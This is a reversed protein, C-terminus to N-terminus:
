IGGIGSVAGAACACFFLCTVAGRTGGPTLGASPLKASAAVRPLVSRALPSLAQGRRWLAEQLMLHVRLDPDDRLISRMVAILNLPLGRPEFAYPVFQLSIATCGWLQLQERTIRCREAWPLTAPLRLAPLAIGECVQDARLTTQICHDNLALLCTPVGLRVCAAALRRSYDGVGDAGPELCGGILVLTM